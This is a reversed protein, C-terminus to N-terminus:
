SWVDEQYRSLKRMESVWKSAVDESVDEREAILAALARSVDKAMNKADGCVYVHARSAGNLKQQECLLTRYILEANEKLRHQVYIKQPQDRSFATIIQSEPAVQQIDEFLKELEERYMYDKSETRAGFFLLTTGMPQDPNARATQAREQVFARMPALGTGPGVMIVPTANDVPLRFTSKRIFVPMTLARKNSVSGPSPQLTLSQLLYNKADRSASVSSLDAVTHLEASQSLLHGTRLRNDDNNDNSAELDVIRDGRLYRLVGLLYNTAVGCRRAGMKAQVAQETKADYQLVVATITPREPHVKGSSSISYLRAQLRPCLEIAAHVPLVFPEEGNGLVDAQKEVDRVANILRGLSMCGATVVAAHVDKDEALPRLFTRAAESRAFPLVLSKIQSRPVPTTIELYHRFAARYTTAEVPFLQQQPAYPDTAQVAIPADAKDLLGLAALLLDVEEDTNTPYVGIHDGAEHRMGSGALDVEVHLLHRDAAPTLEVAATVPAAFPHRSDYTTVAGSFLEGKAWTQSADMEVVKWSPEPASEDGSDSLTSMGLHQRILPLTADKWRAFDEEIDIDDDGEGREGIRDAGLALLRRDVVRAHHNFQEYTNNGLGFMAYSIGQLPMNEDLPPNDDAQCFEPVDSDDPSEADSVLAKYWAEMNDTPEGEGATALVFIVLEDSRLRSLYQWDYLEPDLVLPRVAQSQIDKSLRTAFDEATGTQSGYLIVVNKSAKRMKDVIDREPNHQKSKEVGIKQAEELAARQAITMEQAAKNGFLYKRLLFTAAGIVVSSVIVMDGWEIGEQTAM